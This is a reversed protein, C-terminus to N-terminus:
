YVHRTSKGTKRYSGYRNDIPDTTSVLLMEIDDRVIIIDNNELKSEFIRVNAVENYSNVIRDDVGLHFLIRVLVNSRTKKKL